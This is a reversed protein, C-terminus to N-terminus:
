YKKKNYIETMINQLEIANEIEVSFVFNFKYLKNLLGNDFLNLLFDDKEIIIGNGDPCPLRRIIGKKDCIFQSCNKMLEIDIDKYFRKHANFTRCILYVNYMAIDKSNKLEINNSKLFKDDYIYEPKVSWISHITQQLIPLSEFDM